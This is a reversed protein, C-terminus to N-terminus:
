NNPDYRTSQIASFKELPEYLKIGGKKKNRKRREKSIKSTYKKNIEFKDENSYLFWANIKEMTKQQEKSITMFTANYSLKSWGYAKLSNLRGTFTQHFRKTRELTNIIEILKEDIENVVGKKNFKIGLYRVKKNTEKKTKIQSLKETGFTIIETKNFNLKANSVDEYIKVWDLMKNIDEEKHAFLLLDDAHANIKREMSKLKYGNIEKDNKINIILPNLGLIFLLPSLCDGQPVGRKTRFPESLEENFIVRAKSSLNNKIFKIFKNGFGKAKLVEITYAHSM